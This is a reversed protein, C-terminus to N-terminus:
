RRPFAIPCDPHCYPVVLPDDCGTSTYQGREANALFRRLESDPIAHEGAVENVSRLLTLAEEHDIQSWNTLQKALAFYVAARHGTTIPSDEAHELIYEACMHLNPQAGFEARSTRESPPDILLWRAKDQWAKPDNLAAEAGVLFEDVTYPERHEDLIPRTAGHYPLNIYNGMKVKSFDHNKPFVEIHNKGAALTAERLIGMPIYAEIPDSFFVWVHANGSRSSEVWSEGPIYKQMEYAADFDPEDLDIAAFKVTNDARLPGIGIGPGKGELHDIWDEPRPPRKIWQGRGTGFASPLGDFLAKFRPMLEFVSAM